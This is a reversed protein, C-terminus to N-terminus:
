KNASMWIAIDFIRLRTPVLAGDAEVAVLEQLKRLGASNMPERLDARIGSLLEPLRGADRSGLAKSYWDSIARDYPPVLRPRARHLLKAALTPELSAGTLAYAIEGLLDDEAEELGVDPPLRLLAADLAPKAVAFADLSSKTLRVGLAASALLDSAEISTRSSPREDYLPAAWSEPPSSLGLHRRVLEGADDIAVGAAVLPVMWNGM